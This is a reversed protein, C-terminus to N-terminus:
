ARAPVTGDSHERGEDFAQGRAREVRYILSNITSTSLRWLDPEIENWPRAGACELLKDLKEIAIRKEETKTM